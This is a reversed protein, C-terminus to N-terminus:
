KPQNTARTIKTSTAAFAETLRLIEEIGEVDLDAVSLLRRM